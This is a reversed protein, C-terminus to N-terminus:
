GGGLERQWEMGDKEPQRKRRRWAMESGTVM